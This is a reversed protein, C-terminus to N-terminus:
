SLEVFHHPTKANKATKPKDGRPFRPPCQPKPPKQSTGGPTIRLSMAIKATKVLVGGAKRGGGRSLPPTESLNARYDAVSIGGIYITTGGSGSFLPPGCLLTGGSGRWPVKTHM